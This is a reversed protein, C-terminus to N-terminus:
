LHYFTMTPGSSAPQHQNALVGAGAIANCRDDHSGPGPAHDITDRGSRSTRRELMVFQNLAKEDPPLEVAGTQLMPLFELYIESRNMSSPKLTIGNRSFETIPWQAAYRDGTITKIGYRKLVDAYQATIAAPDGHQAWVGAIVSRNNEKFAIALTYEDAGGGAVDVFGVFKVSNNPPITLPRSRTNNDILDRTIFASIDNRFKALYEADAAVPDREIADDVVKQPLSPNMTRSPAQAVLIAADQGYYRRYAEWLAGRRAYPSSLAILKGDLTALAPRLANLIEADPNASEDSRWFAVEDAIVAALTYGRVSRFSATGIEIVTRNNLEISERDERVIMRKLMPNSNLLGLVYRFVSRAQKRDAALVLVTAVEGAALRNTYDFFCAIYVALLAAMQSKGGRRGIVLWLETCVQEPTKARSTISEWIRREKSDLELGFFGSLLVMWALWSEDAFENGLLNPDTMVDRISVSM